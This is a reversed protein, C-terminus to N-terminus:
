AERVRAAEHSGLFHTRPLVHGFQSAAGILCPLGPLGRPVAGVILRGSQTRRSFSFTSCATPPDTRM